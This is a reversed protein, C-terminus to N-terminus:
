VWSGYNKTDIPIIIWFLIYLPVIVYWCLIALVITIARVIAPDASLYEAIGGCVGSIKKNKSSRHLKKDKPLDLNGRRAAVMLLVGGAVIAVPWLINIILSIVWWLDIFFVGLVREILQWLGFFVLLVGIIIAINSKNFRGNSM